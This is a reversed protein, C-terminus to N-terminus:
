SWGPTALEYSDNFDIVSSSLSNSYLKPPESSRQRPERIIQNDNGVQLNIQADNGSQIMVQACSTTLNIHQPDGEEFTLIQCQVDNNGASPVASKLGNIESLPGDDSQSDVCQGAVEANGEVNCLSRLITAKARNRVIVLLVLSIAIIVGIIVAIVWALISQPSECGSILLLTVTPM